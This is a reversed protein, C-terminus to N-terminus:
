FLFVSHDVKKIKNVPESIEASTLELDSNGKSFQDFFGRLKTKMTRADNANIMGNSLSQCISYCVTPSVSLDQKMLLLTSLVKHQYFYALSQYPTFGYKEACFTFFEAFKGITEANKGVGEELDNEAFQKVLYNRYETNPAYALWPILEVKVASLLNEDGLTMVQTMGSYRQYMEKSTYKQDKYRAEFQGKLCTVLDALAIVCVRSSGQLSGELANKEINDIVFQWSEAVYNLDILCNLIQSKSLGAQRLDDSIEFGYAWIAYTCISRRRYGSLGLPEPQVTCDFFRMKVYQALTAIDRKEIAANLNELTCAPATNEDKLIM